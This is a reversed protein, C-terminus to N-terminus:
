PGSFLVRVMTPFTAMFPSIEDVICSLFKVILPSKIIFVGFAETTNSEDTFTVPVVMISSTAAEVNVFLPTIPLTLITSEFPVLNIM